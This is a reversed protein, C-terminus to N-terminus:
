KPVAYTFSMRFAVTAGSGRVYLSSVTGFISEVVKGPKIPFEPGDAEFAAMLDNTGSQNEIQVNEVQRPLDIQTANALTGQNPATGSITQLANYPLSPSGIMTIASPPTASASNQEVGGIVFAVQLWFTGTDSLPSGGVTYKSPKLVIRVTNPNNDPTLVMGAVEPDVYGTAPATVLTTTAADWNQAAKVRYQDVGALMPVSIDVLGNKRRLVSFVRKM